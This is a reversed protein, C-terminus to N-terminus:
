SSALLWSGSPSLSPVATVTLLQGRSILVAQYDAGYPNRCQAAAAIHYSPSVDMVRSLYAEASDYDGRVMMPILPEGGSCPQTGNSPNEHPSSSAVPIAM